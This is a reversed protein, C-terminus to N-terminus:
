AGSAYIQWKLCLQLCHHEKQNETQNMTCADNNPNSDLLNYDKDDLQIFHAEREHIQVGICLSSLM